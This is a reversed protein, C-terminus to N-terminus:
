DIPINNIHWEKHHVPCLWNIDLPKNYDSHHAKADKRGCKECDEKILKGKKIAYYVKNNARLRKRFTQRYLIDKERQRAPNNKRWRRMAEKRSKRGRKTIGWRGVMQNHCEKCNSQLGDLAIKNPSFCNLTKRKFCFSCKKM